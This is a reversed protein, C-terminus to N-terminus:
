RQSVMASRLRGFAEGKWTKIALVQKPYFMWLRLTLVWRDTRVHIATHRLSSNHLRFGARCILFQIAGLSM